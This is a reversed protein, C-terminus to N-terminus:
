EKIGANSMHQFRVLLRAHPCFDWNLSIHTTFQFDTGIDVGGFEHRSLGTFNAGAETSVPFNNPGMRLNPGLQCVFANAGNGGLWGAASQVETQVFWNTSTGFEWRWPLDWNAFAEAQNLDQSETNVGFGGRAGVSELHLSFDLAKGSQIATLMGVCIVWLLK